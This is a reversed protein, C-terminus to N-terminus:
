YFCHKKYKLREWEEYFLNRGAEKSRALRDMFTEITEEQPQIYAKRTGHRDIVLRWYACEEYGLEDKPYLQEYADLCEDPILM